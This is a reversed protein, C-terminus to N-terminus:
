GPEYCLRFSSLLSVRPKLAGEHLSYDDVTGIRTVLKGPFGSSKRYMLTGCVSCFYNAMESGSDITNSQAYRTLKDQGKLHLTSSETVIFNSAFMSATIKRCDAHCSNIIPLLPNTSPLLSTGSCNCIFTDVLDPKQTAVEIQVTGCYCTATARGPKSEQGGLPFNGQTTM